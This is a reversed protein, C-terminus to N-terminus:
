GREEYIHDRDMAELSLIPVHRRPQGDAWNRFRMAEAEAEATNEFQRSGGSGLNVPKQRNRAALLAELAHMVLADPDEGQSMAEKELRERMAPPLEEILKM